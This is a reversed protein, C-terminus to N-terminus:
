RIRWAKQTKGGFTWSHRKPKTLAGNLRVQKFDDYVIFSAEIAGYGKAIMTTDIALDGDPGVTARVQLRSRKGKQYDFSVGDDSIYTYTAPHTSRTRLFLHLEIRNGDFANDTPLAGASMPLIAGERMYLPTQKETPQVADLRGAPLWDADMISYWALSGPLLVARAREHESVIPAQLLASGVLFQDDIRSLPQEARDEFDYFLPRLIAEGSEEQQVFLNYLYPRLKYRLQIYHKLINRTTTDFAWPEQERTGIMSHNRCFPFLFCAKMWDRILQPTADGAFGGIDPGNFPVGSLALNLSVAISNRLYHYRSMNDGTWLAAYKSIGTFGSRSLLFPRQNPHAAAFGDRSAQAMGLAYQNHYTYHSDRGRNFRMDLCRVPGTSPDNMDLWAGYIGQKAFTRVHDAWWDRGAPMSYDPFVTEGPWVLGVYEKNQPNRCFIDAKRGSEYVPYGAEQKVGPDLIPVVKRGREEFSALTKRLLPFHKKNFTFVKFADMYDIDLWLGDCPIEHKRFGEDLRELCSHAKYGWRCQHYGLAWAPPLPTPGVLRQLKRTLEALSPGTLIYLDPQGHESGITIFREKSGSVIMQGGGIEPRPSTSIFTAYPNDLLLGVYQNGRKIILYPISVYMPDPRDHEIEQWHFDGFIDTNWFKTQLGSLELGRMKEGMGYFEHDDEQNFAFLSSVGSIGFTQRTPSTLLPQGTADRLTIGFGDDVEISPGATSTKRRRPPRKLGAQSYNKKWRRDNVQVRFIGDQYATVAVRMRDKGIPCPKDPQYRTLFEFNHIFPQKRFYM